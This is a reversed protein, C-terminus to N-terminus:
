NWSLWASAAPPPGPGQSLAARFGAHTHTCTHTNAHPARWRRPRCATTHPTEATRDPMCGACRSDRHGARLPPRQTVPVATERPPASSAASVSLQAPSQGARSCLQAIVRAAHVSTTPTDAHSSSAPQALSSAKSDCLGSIATAWSSRSCARPRTRAEGPHSGM